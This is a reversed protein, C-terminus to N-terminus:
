LIIGEGVGPPLPYSPPWEEEGETTSKAVLESVTVSEIEEKEKPPEEVEEAEQVDEEVNEDPVEQIEVDEDAM